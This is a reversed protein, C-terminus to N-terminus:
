LRESEDSTFSMHAGDPALRVTSYTSPNGIQATEKGNGDFWAVRSEDMHWQVAITGNPSASVNSWGTAASYAVPGIISVPEGVPQRAALDVRQAVLTGERVFVLWDSDIWQAQSAATVLPTSRGDPEALMIRGQSDPTLQTYMFRRGDPLHRPWLVRGGDGPEVKVDVPVGGAAPVRSIRDGQVTPFLIDGQLGWSGSLGITIPVNCVKVPAGGSLEVRKLQGGAFFGLTRGDPLWFMSTAWDTGPVERSTEDGLPRVM